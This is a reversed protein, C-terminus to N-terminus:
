QLGGAQTALSAFYEASLKLIEEGTTPKLRRMHKTYNNLLEPLPPPIMAQLREDHVDPCRHTNKQIGTSFVGKELAEKTDLPGGPIAVM